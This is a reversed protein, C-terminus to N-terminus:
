AAGSARALQGVAGRWAAMLAQAEPTGPAPAWAATAAARRPDYPGGKVELVVTGAELALVAHWVGLPVHAGFDPGGAALLAIEELEGGEGFCLMAIRGRVVILTEEQGAGHHRHPPVYSDPEIANFFRQAPAEATEHLNLNARRRPAAAAQVSLADLSKLDLIKM